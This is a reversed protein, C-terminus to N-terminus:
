VRRVNFNLSEEVRVSTFKNNFFGPPAPSGNIGRDSVFLIEPSFQIHKIIPKCPCHFASPM